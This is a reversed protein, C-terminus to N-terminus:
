AAVGVTGGILLSLSILFMVTCIAGVALLMDYIGRFEGLLKELAGVGFLHAVAGAISFSFRALLLYLLTPLALLLLAAVAGVGVTNKLLTMSGALTGLVSSITGGVIPIMTGVAYKAGRMAASDAASTLSKQLALSCTLAFSVLGLVTMFLGRLNKAIGDLKMEGGLSGVLAFGFSCGAVTPLVGAAVTETVAIGASLATGSVAATAGHGAAIYVATFAPIAGTIVSQMDSLLSTLSSVGVSACKWILSALTASIAAGALRRAGEGGGRTRLLEVAAGLLVIGILSSLFPLMERVGDAASEGLLSFLSKLGVLEGVSESDANEPMRDRVLDPLADLFGGWVKGEDLEEAAVPVATLLFLLLTLLFGKGIKKM